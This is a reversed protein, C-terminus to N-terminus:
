LRQPAKISSIGAYQSIVREIDRRIGRDEYKPFLRRPMAKPFREDTKPSNIPMCQLAKNLRSHEQVPCARIVLTMWKEFGIPTLAPVDPELDNRQQVFHHQCRLEIYM